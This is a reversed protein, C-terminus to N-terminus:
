SSSIIMTKFSGMEDGGSSIFVGQYVCYRVVVQCSLLAPASQVITNTYMLFRRKGCEFDVAECM